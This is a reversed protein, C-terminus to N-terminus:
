LASSPFGECNRAGTRRLRPSVLYIITRHSIPHPRTRVMLKDYNKLLLPWKSADLTPTIKEPAIAFDETVQSHLSPDADAGYFAVPFGVNPRRDLNVSFQALERAPINLDRIRVQKSGVDKKDKGMARTLDNARESLYGRHSSLANGVTAGGM